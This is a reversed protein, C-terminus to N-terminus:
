DFRQCALQQFLIFAVVFFMIGLMYNHKVLLNILSQCLLVTNILTVFSIYLFYEIRCNKGATEYRQRTESKSYFYQLDWKIDNITISNISYDM